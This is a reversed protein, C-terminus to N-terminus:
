ANICTSLRISWQKGFFTSQEIFCSCRSGLSLLTFCEQLHLAQLAFSYDLLEHHL